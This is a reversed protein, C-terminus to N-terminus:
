RILVVLKLAMTFTYHKKEQTQSLQYRGNATRKWVRLM